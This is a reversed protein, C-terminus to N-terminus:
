TALFPFLFRLHRHGASGCLLAFLAVLFGELFPVQLGPHLGRPFVHGVRGRGQSAKLTHRIQMGKGSQDLSCLGRGQKAKFMLSIQM